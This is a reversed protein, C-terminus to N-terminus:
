IIVPKLDFQDARFAVPASNSAPNRRLIAPVFLQLFEGGLRAKVRNVIGPEVETESGTGRRVQGDAPGVPSDISKGAHRGALKNDDLFASADCLRFVKGALLLTGM